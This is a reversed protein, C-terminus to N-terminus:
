RIIDLYGNYTKQQGAFRVRLSLPVSGGETLLLSTTSTSLQETRNGLTLTYNVREDFQKLTVTVLDGRVLDGRFELHDTWESTSRFDGAPLAPLATMPEPPLGIGARLTSASSRTTSNGQYHGIVLGTVSVLVFCFAPALQTVRRLTRKIPHDLSHM